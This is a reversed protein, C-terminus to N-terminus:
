KGQLNAIRKKILAIDKAGPATTVYTQLAELAKQNDGLQAYALGLGRYGGVYGPYHDLAQRYSRVAGGADGAFLKQNGAVYASRARAIAPDEATEAAPGPRPAENEKGTYEVVLKKSALKRAPEQGTRIVAASPKRKPTSAPTAAPASSRLAPTAAAPPAHSPLAVPEETATVAIRASATSGQAPDEIQVATAIASPRGGGAVALIVVLVVFGAASGTWVATPRSAAAARLSAIAAIVRRTSAGARLGAIAAIARRTAAGARLGAIAAIMRRMAAGARLGAIAAIMRRTSAGARVGRIAAVARRMSRALHARREPWPSAVQDMMAVLDASLAPDSESPLPPDSPGGNASVPLPGLPV